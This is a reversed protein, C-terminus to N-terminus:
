VVNILAGLAFILQLKCVGHKFVAVSDSNVVHAPLRNWVNNNRCVFANMRCNVNIQQFLVYSFFVFCIVNCNSLFTCSELVQGVNFCM